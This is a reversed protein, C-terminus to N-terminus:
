QIGMQAALQPAPLYGGVQRGDKLFVAPTGRVGLKFGLNIQNQIVHQDCTKGAPAPIDDDTLKAKSMAALRDTSCWIHAMTQGAPSQLGARPWAAYKVTIGLNNIQNIESHLKRCYGCTPDTFVLVEGKEQGKAKFVVLDKDNLASLAQERQESRTQESLNTVSGDAEVRHVDGSIIYGGDASVQLMEGSPTEVQYLGKVPSASITKVPLSPVTAKLKDKLALIEPSEAASVGACFLLAAALVLSSRVSRM